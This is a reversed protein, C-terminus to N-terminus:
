KLGSQPGLTFPAISRWVALNLKGGFKGAIRYIGYFGAIVGGRACLGGEM